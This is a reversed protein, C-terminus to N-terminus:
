GDYKAANLDFGHLDSLYSAIESYSYGDALAAAIDFKPM